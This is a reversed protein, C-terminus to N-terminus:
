LAVQKSKKGCRILRLQLAQDLNPRLFHAPYVRRWYEQQQGPCFWPEKSFFVNYFQLWYLNLYTPLKQKQKHEKTYTFYDKKLWQLWRRWPQHTTNHWNLKGSYGKVLQILNEELIYILIAKSCHPKEVVQFVSQNLAQIITKDYSMRIYDPEKWSMCGLSILPSQPQDM